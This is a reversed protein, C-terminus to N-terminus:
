GFRYMYPFLIIIVQAVFAAYRKNRLMEREEITKRIFELSNLQEMFDMEIDELDSNFRKLKIIARLLQEDNLETLKDNNDSYCQCLCGYLEQYQVCELYSLHEINDNQKM